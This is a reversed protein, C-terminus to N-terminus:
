GSEEAHRVVMAPVAAAVDRRTAAADAACRVAFGHRGFYEALLARLEPEDDVVLLDTGAPASANVMRTRGGNATLAPGAELRTLPVTRACGPQFSHFAGPGSRSIRAIGAPGVM